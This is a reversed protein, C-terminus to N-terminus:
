PLRDRLGSINKYFDQVEKLSHCYKNYKNSPIGLKLLLDHAEQHTTQGLDTVLDYGMFDMKRSAAIKPDLQRISGAALNRPNAFLPEGVKQQKINVRRFEARSIYVEGRVEVEGSVLLKQRDDLNDVMLSLPIGEITRVNLTVDEGVKGDGRTAAKVLKGGVYILSVALGDMKIEAFYGGQLDPVIKKIRQEWDQLETLSFMDNLSLMRVRHSVKEFQDLPKGEVRRTPSDATIYEPNAQELTYLEHKLSDLAAESIEERDLVHYLYRHYNIVEKLKEIRNKIENKNM